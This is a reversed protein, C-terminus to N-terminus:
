QHGYVKYRGAIVFWLAYAMFMAAPVLMTLNILENVAMGLLRENDPISESIKSVCLSILFLVVGAAYIRGVPSCTLWVGGLVVACFLVSLVEFVVFGFGTYLVSLKVAERFSFADFAWLGVATFFILAAVILVAMIIKM